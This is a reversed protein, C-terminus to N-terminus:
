LINELTPKRLDDTPCRARYALPVWGSGYPLPVRGSIGRTLSLRREHLALVRYLMGM